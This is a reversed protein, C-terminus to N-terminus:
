FLEKIVFYRTGLEKWFRTCWLIYFQGGLLCITCCFKQFRTYEFNNGDYRSQIHLSVFNKDLLLFYLSFRYSRIVQCSTKIRCFIMRCKKGYRRKMMLIVVGSFLKCWISRTVRTLIMYSSYFM